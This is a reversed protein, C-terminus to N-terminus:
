ASLIFSNLVSVESLLNWECNCLYSSLINWFWAFILFSRNQLPLDPLLPKGFRLFLSFVNLELMATNTEITKFFSIMVYSSPWHWDLFPDCPRPTNGPWLVDFVHKRYQIQISAVFHDLDSAPLLPDSTSVLGSWTPSSLFFTWSVNDDEAQVM